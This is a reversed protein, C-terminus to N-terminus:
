IVQKLKYLEKSPLERIWVWVQWSSREWSDELFKEPAAQETFGLQTRRHVRLNAKIQIYVPSICILSQGRIWHMSFMIVPSASFPAAMPFPPLCFAQFIRISAPAIGWRSWGPLVNQSRKCCFCCVLCYWLWCSVFIKRPCRIRLFSDGLQLCGTWAAQVRFCRMLIISSETSSLEVGVAVWWSPSFKGQSRYWPSNQKMGGEMHQQAKTEAEEMQASRETRPILHALSGLRM